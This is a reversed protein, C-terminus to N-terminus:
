LLKQYFKNDMTEIWKANNKFGAAFYSSQYHLTCISATFQNPLIVPDNYRLTVPSLLNCFPRISKSDPPIHGMANIMNFISFPTWTIFFFSVCEVCKKEVPRTKIRTKPLRRGRHFRQMSKKSKRLEILMLVYIICIFPFPVGFQVIKSIM